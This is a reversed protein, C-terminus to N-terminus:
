RTGAFKAAGGGKDDGVLARLLEAGGRDLLVRRFRCAPMEGLRVNSSYKASPSCFLLSSSKVGERFPVGSAGGGFTPPGGLACSSVFSYDAPCVYRWVNDGHLM